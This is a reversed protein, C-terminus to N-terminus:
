RGTVAGFVKKLLASGAQAPNARLAAEEEGIVTYLRDLTARTVYHDVSAEDEDILGFQAAIGAYQDYRRALDVRDTTAKVIPGFREALRTGTRDRFFDTASTSGGNLIGQADELTMNKVADALLVGAEPVAAEAARNMALILADTQRGMGLTRMAKEAKQLGPPLPIKLAADGFFGDKQGLRAIAAEAGRMLAERLGADVDGDSLAGVGGGSPGAPPDIVRKLMAGWDLGYAPGALVLGAALLSSVILPRM